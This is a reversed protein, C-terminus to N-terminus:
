ATAPQFYMAYGFLLFDQDLEFYSQNGDTQHWITKAYWQLQLHEDYNLAIM